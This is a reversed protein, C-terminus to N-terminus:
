SSSRQPAQGRPPSTIAGLLARTGAKRLQLPGFVDGIEPGCQTLIVLVEPGNGYARCAEKGTAERGSPIDRFPPSEVKQLTAILSAPEEPQDLGTL